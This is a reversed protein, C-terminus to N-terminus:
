MEEEDGQMAIDGSMTNLPYENRAAHHSLVNKAQHEEMLTTCINEQNGRELTESWEVREWSKSFYNWLVDFTLPLNM